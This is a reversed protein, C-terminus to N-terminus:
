FQLEMSIRQMLQKFITEDIEIPEDLIAFDLTYGRIKEEKDCSKFMVEAGNWFIAKMDGKSFKMRALQIPVNNKDLVDQYYRLEQQFVKFVVDTLQPTTLSGIFGQCGPNEICTTIAIHAALLTKGARVAGSYLIYRKNKVARFVKLQEPLFERKINDIINIHGGM